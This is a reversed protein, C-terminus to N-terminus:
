ALGVVRAWPKPQGLADFPAAGPKWHGKDRWHWVIIQAVKHRRAIKMVERAVATQLITTSDAEYGPEIDFETFHTPIKRRRLERCLWDFVTFDDDLVSFHCELGVYDPKITMDDILDLLRQARGRNMECGWENLGFKTDPWLLMAKTFYAGLEGPTLPEAHQGVPLMEPPFEKLAPGTNGPALPENVLDVFEPLKRSLGAMAYIHAGIQGWRGLRTAMLEPNYHGLQSPKFWLWTHEKHQKDHRHALNASMRLRTASYNGDRDIVAPAKAAGGEYIIDCKRLVEAPPPDGQKFAIGLTPRHGFLLRKLWDIM